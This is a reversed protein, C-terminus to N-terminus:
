ADASVRPDLLLYCADALASGLLVLLTSALTLVALLSFDLQQASAVLAAAIGPWSFIEEVLVAGVILEPLRAGLVSVLPALSVPLVHSTVVVRRPLGRAAAAQVPDSALAQRVSMRSSLLLWPTQSIALVTVPMVLHRLLTAATLPEGPPAVGGIPLLRLGLGLVTIAVLSLVFPPVAQVIVAAATCVLDLLSGPRLGALLGLTLGLVLALVLASLSLLMTWPLREAIVQAVPQAFVRSTGLDGRVLASAWLLWAQWWPRDLGLASELEARQAPTAREYRDGLYGALPDFPSMAALLFVVGSVVILLPVSVAARRALLVGVERRRRVWRGPTRANTASTSM